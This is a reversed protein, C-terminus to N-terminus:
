SAVRFSWMRDGFGDEMYSVMDICRKKCVSSKEILEIKYKELVNLFHKREEDTHDVGLKDRCFYEIKLRLFAMCVKLLSSSLHNM